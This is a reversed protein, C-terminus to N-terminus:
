YFSKFISGKRIFVKMMPLMYAPNRPAALMLVPVPPSGRTHMDNLPNNGHCQNCAWPESPQSILPSPFQGYLAMGRNADGCGPNGPNAVQPNCTQQASADPSGAAFTLLLAFAFGAFRDM